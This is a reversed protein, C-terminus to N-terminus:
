PKDSGLKFGKKEMIKKKTWKFSDFATEKISKNHDWYSYTFRKTEKIIFQYIHKPLICKLILLFQLVPLTNSKSLSKNWVAASYIEKISRKRKFKILEGRGIKLHKNAFQYLKKNLWLYLELLAVPIVPVLAVIINFVSYFSIGILGSLIRVVWRIISVLKIIGETPDFFEARVGSTLAREYWYDKGKNKVINWVKPHSVAHRYIEFLDHRAKLLGNINLFSSLIREYWNKLMVKASRESCWLGLCEGLNFGLADM